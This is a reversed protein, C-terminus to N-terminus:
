TLNMLFCSRADASFELKWPWEPSSLRPGPFNEENLFIEIEDKLKFFLQLLLKGRSLWQVARYYPLALYESKNKAFIQPVSM